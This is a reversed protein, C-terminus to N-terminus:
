DLEDKLKTQLSQQKKAEAAERRELDALAGKVEDEGLGSMKDRLVANERSRGLGEKINDVNRAFEETGLFTGERDPDWSASM